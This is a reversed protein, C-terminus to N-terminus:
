IISDSEVYVKSFLLHKFKKFRLPDTEGVPQNYLDPPANWVVVLYLIVM